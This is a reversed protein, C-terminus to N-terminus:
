LSIPWVWPPITPTPYCNGNSFYSFDITGDQNWDVEVCWGDSDSTIIMEYVGNQDVDISTQTTGNGPYHVWIEFKGDGGLDIRRDTVNGFPDYDEEIIPGAPPNIPPTVPEPVPTPTPPTIPPIPPPTPTITTTTSSSTGETMSPPPTPEVRIRQDNQLMDNMQEVQEEMTAETSASYEPLVANESTSHEPPVPVGAPEDAYSSLALILSIVNLLLFSGTLVSIKKM